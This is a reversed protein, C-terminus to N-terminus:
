AELKWGDRYTQRVYQNAEELNTVRMAEGDWLLKQGPYFLALNGMLVMETFPGSYDFNASPQRGEKCAQVWDLEHSTTVRPLTREPRKYEKMKSYPILQPGKAYCGCMLKGSDGIFLVGGSSDGMRRQSELEDPRPPMLGGDYWHVQVPPMDERAPFEFHIISATPYSEPHELHKWKDVCIKAYSGQVSVPYKLKLAWFAPDLVHCAMDGLAGTGFDVWSRWDWPHYVPHYPRM